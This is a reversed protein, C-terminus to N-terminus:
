PTVGRAVAVDKVERHESDSAPDSDQPVIKQMIVLDEVGTVSSKKLVGESYHTSKWPLQDLVHHQDSSHDNCPLTTLTGHLGM